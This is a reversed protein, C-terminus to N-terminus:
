RVVRFALQKAKSRHGLADTGTLVFRYVGPRLRSGGVRGTFRVSNSGAKGTRQLTATARVYRSCRKRKRNHRTPKVCRHGSKRGSLKRQVGITVKAAESLRFRITTGRPARKRRAAVATPSSGDRFTRSSLSASLFSPAETDAITTHGSLPGASNGVADQASVSVDYGGPRDYSHKVSAGNAHRGDGFSWTTTVPGWEDFVGVRFPLAVHQGGGTPVQLGSLRPAVADFGAAAVPEPGKVKNSFDSFAVVGNGEADMGAGGNAFIRGVAGTKVTTASGFSGGPPRVAAQYIPPDTASGFRWWSVAIGGSPDAGMLAFLGTGIPTPAAFEAGANRFGADVTQGNAWVAVSNGGSDTTTGSVFTFDTYPGGIQLEPTFTGGGGPTRFAREVSYQAGSTATWVVVASGDPAVASTSGYPAQLTSIKQGPTSFVGTAPRYSADLDHNTAETWMVLADGGAGIAVQPGNAGGGTAALTAVAGFSGGAPRFAAQVPGNAQWAAVADGGPNVDLDARFATATGTALPEEPLFTGDALRERVNASFAMPSSFKDRAYLAYLNGAKDFELKYLFVSEESAPAALTEAPGLVGGPPRVRLKLEGTAPDTFAIAVDGGSAMAVKPRAESSNCPSPANSCRNQVTAVDFPALWGSNASAAPPLAVLAVFAAALAFLRRLTRAPSIV